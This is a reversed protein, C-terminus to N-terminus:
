RLEWEHVNWIPLRNIAGVAPGHVKALHGLVEINFYIPYVPLQDSTVQVMNIVHRDREARDLTTEFLEFARDFEPSSWGGRNNGVWRNAPSGIQATTFM